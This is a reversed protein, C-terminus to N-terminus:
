GGGKDKGNEAKMALDIRNQFLSPNGFFLAELNQAIARGLTDVQSMEAKGFNGLVYNHVLAKNGPHEIGLRVRWYNAGLHSTISRLGNHGADGGGQKVRLKALPLDLEDHFVYIKDPPIKYFQACAQVSRGSENMYTQPLLVLARWNESKNNQAAPKQAIETVLGQFKARLPAHLYAGLLAEMILAGFNHRNNRYTEGHEGGIPNGLGVCLYM